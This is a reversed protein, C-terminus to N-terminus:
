FGGRKIFIFNRPKLRVAPLTIDFKFDNLIDFSHCIVDQLPTSISPGTQEDIATASSCCVELILLVFCAHISDCSYCFSSLITSRLARQVIPCSGLPLLFPAFLSVVPPALVTAAVGYMYPYMGAELTQVCAANGWEGFCENLPRDTARRDVKEVASVKWPVRQRGTDSCFQAIYSLGGGGFRHAVMADTTTSLTKYRSKSKPPM